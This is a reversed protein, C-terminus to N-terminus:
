IYPIKGYGGRMRGTNGVGEIYNLAHLDIQQVDAEDLRNRDNLADVQCVDKKTM